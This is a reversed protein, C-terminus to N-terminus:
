PLRTAPNTHLRLDLTRGEWTIRSVHEERITSRQFASGEIKGVVVITTESWSLVSVLAIFNHQEGALNSM